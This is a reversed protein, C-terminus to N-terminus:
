REALPTREDRAPMLMSTSADVEGFSASMLSLLRDRFRAYGFVTTAREHGREGMAVRRPGDQLLAVLCGTIAARDGQDLLCGTVGDEIVNGAADHISGVCPLKRMMAELYVLGFGEERSPMAFVAAREYLASLASETVFGTFIVSPTIGLAAAKGTLRPLDDGAGAFVLRASPVKALVGPWAEILEDHGKYREESAMRGVLLVSHTGLDWPLPLSTEAQPLRPLALPCTEIRDMWPHARSVRDATYHSNAVLISAGELVQRQSSSLPRWAEIGHLFVGYPKALARPVFTQVKALSLHTYFTWTSHGLAQERALRAGFHVRASTSASLQGPRDGEEMLQVLRCGDGWRDQFARWVLRAVTAVGGGEPRLTVAAVTPGTM